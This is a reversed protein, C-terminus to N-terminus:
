IGYKQTTDRKVEKWSYTRNSDCEAISKDIHKIFEDETYTKPKYENKINLFSKIYDQVRLQEVEPLSRVMKITAETITM